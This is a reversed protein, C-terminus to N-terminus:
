DFDDCTKLLTKKIFKKDFYDTWSCDILKDITNKSESQLLFKLVKDPCEKSLNNMNQKIIEQQILYYKFSESCSLM